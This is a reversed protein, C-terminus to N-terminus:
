DGLLHDAIVRIAPEPGRFAWLQSTEHMRRPLGRDSLGQTFLPLAPAHHEMEVYRGLDPHDIACLQAASGPEDFDAPTQWAVDVYLGAPDVPFRRVVLASADGNPYVYGIMGTNGPGIPASARVDLSAARFGLKHIGATTPRYRVLRDAIRLESPSVEGFFVKPTVSANSTPVIFEGGPPFQAVTWLGIAARRPDDDEEDESEQSTIAFSTAQTYGAYAVDDMLASSLTRVPNSAPAWSKVIEVGASVRARVHTVVFRNVVVRLRLRGDVAAAILEHHGPDMAPPCVYVTLDPFNPFFLYVEPALWTRDGGTNRWRPAALLADASSASRLAPNTWFFNEDQGAAFLGLVRGGHRLLLLESGDALAQVDFQQGCARLTAMLQRRGIADIATSGSRLEGQSDVNRRM